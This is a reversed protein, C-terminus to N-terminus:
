LAEAEKISELAGAAYRCRAIAEPDDDRQGMGAMEDNLALRALAAKALALATEARAEAVDALSALALAAEAATPRPAPTIRCGSPCPAWGCLPEHPSGEIGTSPGAGCTCGGVEILGGRCNGCPDGPDDGSAVGPDGGTNGALRARFSERRGATQLDAMQGALAGVQGATEAGLDHWLWEGIGDGACIADWVQGAAKDAAAQDVEAFALLVRAAAFEAGMTAIQCHELPLYPHLLKAHREYGRAAMFRALTVATAPGDESLPALATLENRLRAIESAAAVAAAADEETIIKQDSM